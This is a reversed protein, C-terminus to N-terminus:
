NRYWGFVLKSQKLFTDEATNIGCFNDVDAAAAPSTSENGVDSANLASGNLIM